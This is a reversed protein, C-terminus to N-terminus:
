KLICYFYLIIRYLKSCLWVNGLYSFSQGAPLKQDWSSRSRQCYLEQQPYKQVRKQKRHDKKWNKEDQTGQAGRHPEKGALSLYREQKDRGRDQSGEPSPLQSYNDFSFEQYSRHNRGSRTRSEEHSYYDSELHYFQHKSSMSHSPPISPNGTISPKRM